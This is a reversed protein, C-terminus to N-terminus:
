LLAPPSLNFGKVPQNHRHDCARECSSNEGTVAPQCQILATINEDIISRSWAGCTKATPSTTRPGINAWLPESSPMITASRDGAFLRLHIVIQMGRDDVSVRPLPPLDCRAPGSLLRRARYPCPTGKAALPLASADIIRLAQHFDKGMRLVVTDPSGCRRGEAASRTCCTTMAISNPELAFVQRQGYEAM